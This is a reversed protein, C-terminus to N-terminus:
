NGNYMPIPIICIASKLNSILEQTDTFNESATQNTWFTTQILICGKVVDVWLLMVEIQANKEDEGGGGLDNLSMLMLCSTDAQGRLLM